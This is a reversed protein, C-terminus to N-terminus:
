FYAQSATDLVFRFEVREITKPDVCHQKAVMQKAREGQSTRPPPLSLYRELSLLRPPLKPPPSNSGSGSPPPPQRFHCLLDISSRPADGGASKSTNLQFPSFGPLALDLNLMYMECNDANWVTHFTNPSWSCTARPPLDAAPLPCRWLLKGSFPLFVCQM